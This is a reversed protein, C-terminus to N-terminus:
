LETAERRTSGLLRDDPLRRLSGGLAMYTARTDPIGVMALSGKWSVASPSSAANMPTGMSVPVDFRDPALHQESERM